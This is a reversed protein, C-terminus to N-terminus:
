EPTVEPKNKYRDLYRQYRIASHTHLYLSVAGPDAAIIHKFQALQRMGAIVISKRGEARAYDILLKAIIGDDGNELSLRKSIATLNYM